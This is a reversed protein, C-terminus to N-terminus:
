KPSSEIIVNDTYKRNSEIVVHEATPSKDTERNKINRIHGIFRIGVYRKGCNECLIKTFEQNQRRNTGLPIRKVTIERRCQISAM